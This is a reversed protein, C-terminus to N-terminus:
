ASDALVIAVLDSLLPGFNQPGISNPPPPRLGALRVPACERDTQTGQLSPATNNNEPCEIHRGLCGSPQLPASPARMQSPGEHKLAATTM